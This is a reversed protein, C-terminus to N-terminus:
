CQRYMLVAAILCVCLGPEGSGRQRTCTPREQTYATAGPGARHARAGRGLATSRRQLHKAALVLEEAPRNSLGVGRGGLQLRLHGGGPQYALAHATVSVGARDTGVIRRGAVTVGADGGGPLM